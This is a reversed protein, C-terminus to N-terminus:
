IWGDETCVRLRQTCDQPEARLESRPFIQLASPLFGMEERNFVVLFYM